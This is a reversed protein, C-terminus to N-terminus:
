LAPRWRRPTYHYATKECYEATPCSCREGNRNNDVRQTEMSLLQGIAFCSRRRSQVLSGCVIEFLPSLFLSPFSFVIVSRTGASTYFCFFGAQWTPRLLTRQKRGTYYTEAGDLASAVLEDKAPLPPSVRVARSVFSDTTTGGRKPPHSRQLFFEKGRKGVPLSVAIRSIAKNERGLKKENQM